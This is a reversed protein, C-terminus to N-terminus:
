AVKAIEELIHIPLGKYREDKALKMVKANLEVQKEQETFVKELEISIRVNENKMIILSKISEIFDSKTFSVPVKYFEKGNIVVLARALDNANVKRTDAKKADVLKAFTPRDTTDGNELTLFASFDLKATGVLKLLNKFEEEQKNKNVVNVFTFPSKYLENAKKKASSVVSNIVKTETVSVVKISKTTM